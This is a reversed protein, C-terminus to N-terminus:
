IFKCVARRARNKNYFSYENKVAMFLTSTKYAMSENLVNNKLSFNQASKKTKLIRLVEGNYWFRLVQQVEVGQM